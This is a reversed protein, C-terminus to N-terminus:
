YVVYGMADQDHLLARYKTLVGSHPMSFRNDLIVGSMQEIASM